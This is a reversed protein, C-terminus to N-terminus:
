QREATYTYFQDFAGVTEFRYSPLWSNIKLETRYLSFVVFDQRETTQTIISQMQPKASELVQNCNFKIFSQLLSTTKTCVNDELYETLTKTAYQEYEIQSPNTHAMQAGMTAIGAVAFCAAITLAKMLMM